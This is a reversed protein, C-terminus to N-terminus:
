KMKTIAAGLMEILDSAIMTASESNSAYEDAALGHIHVGTKASEFADMKQGILSAIVGTLVDGSGATAMGANGTDNRLIYEGNTVMTRHGKLVFITQSRRALEFCFDEMESRMEFEEGTLRSFEAPHPTLIREAAHESLDVGSSALNNLADADLVVPKNLHSYISSVIKQGDPSQGMGPGIAVVDAWDCKEGLTRNAASSLQGSESEVGLTMICPSFSAVVPRSEHPTVVLALGTGTRLAAMASLAIAGPMEASGGVFLVKGFDGKHSIEPRVPLQFNVRGAESLSNSREEQEAGLVLDTFESLSIRGGRFKKALKQFENRNKM